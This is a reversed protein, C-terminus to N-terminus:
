HNHLIEAGPQNTSTPPMRLKKFPLRRIVAAFLM